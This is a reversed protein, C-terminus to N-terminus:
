KKKPIQSLYEDVLETNPDMQKSKKLLREAEDFNKLKLEIIGKNRYAWSNYPDLMISENIDTRAEDLKGLEMYAFGRNNLIYPQRQDLELGKNAQKIAENFDKKGIAILALSNYILPQKEDLKLCAELESKAEDFQKLFVKSTAINVRCELKNPYGHDLAQQFATVSSQYDSLKIFVLGQLFYVESSDPSKKVLEDIDRLASGFDGSEYYSNARHLRAPYYKPNCNLANSYSEIAEGYRHGKHHVTGINNLADAFCSDLKLSETYYYLAKEDDGKVIEENGKLLFSQIRTEKSECSCIVTVVVIALTYKLM